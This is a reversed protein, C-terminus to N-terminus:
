SATEQFLYFKFSYTGAQLPSTSGSFMDIYAKTSDVYSTIMMGFVVAGASDTFFTPMSGMIPLYTGVPFGLSTGSSMYAVFAPTFGLSHSINASYTSGATPPNPVTVSMTATSVIKFMNFASSMILQSDAATAVDFGRQSVKFGYDRGTGFGDKQYGSLIRNTNGDNLVSSNRIDGGLSSSGPPTQQGM